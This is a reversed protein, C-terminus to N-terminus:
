LKTEQNKTEVELGKYIELTQIKPHSSLKTM